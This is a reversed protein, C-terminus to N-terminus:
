VAQYDHRRKRRDEHPLVPIATTRRNSSQIAHRSLAIASAVLGAALLALLPETIDHGRHHVFLFERAAALSGTILAIAAIPTRSKNPLLQLAIILAIGGYIAMSRALQVAAMDYSKLWQTYFPLWNAVAPKEGPAHHAAQGLWAFALMLNTAMVIIMLSPRQWLAILARKTGHIQDAFRCYFYFALRRGAVAVPYGLIAGLFGGFSNLSVDNLSSVRLAMLSQATEMFFSVAFCILIPALSSRVPGFGRRKFAVKLLMAAPTYLFLNTLFDSLHGTIGLPSTETPEDAVWNPIQINAFLWDVFQSFSADFPPTTRFKLPILSGYAVLILWALALTFYLKANSAVRPARIPAPADTARQVAEGPKPAIVGSDPDPFADISDASLEMDM